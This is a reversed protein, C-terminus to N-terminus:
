IILGEEARPTSPRGQAESCSTESLCSITYAANCWIVVKNLDDQGQPTYVVTTHDRCVLVEHVFFHYNTTYNM